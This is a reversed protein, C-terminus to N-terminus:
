RHVHLRQIFAVPRFEHPNEALDEFMRRPDSLTNNIVSRERRTGVKVTRHNRHNATSIGFRV